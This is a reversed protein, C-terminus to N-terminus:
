RASAARWIGIPPIKTWRRRPRAHERGALGREPAFNPLLLDYFTKQQEDTKPMDWRARSFLKILSGVLEARREPEQAGRQIQAALPELFEQTAPLSIVRPDSLSTAALTRLNEPGNSSYGLVKKQLPDWTANASAEIALRIAPEDKAAEAKIGILAARSQGGDRGIEADCLGDAGAAM